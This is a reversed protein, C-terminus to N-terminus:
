TYKLVSKIVKTGSNISYESIRTEWTFRAKTDNIGQTYEYVTNLYM